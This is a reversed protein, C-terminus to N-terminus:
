HTVPICLTGLSPILICLWDSVRLIRSLLETNIYSIYVALSLSFNVCAYKIKLNEFDNVSSSTNTCEWRDYALNIPRSRWQLSLPTTATEYFYWCKLFRLRSRLSDCSFLWTIAQFDYVISIIRQLINILGTQVQAPPNEVQVLTSSDSGDEAIKM